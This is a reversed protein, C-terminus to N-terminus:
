LDDISPSIPRSTITNGKTWNVSKLNLLQHYAQLFQSILPKINFQNLAQKLTIVVFFSGTAFMISPLTWSSASELIGSLKLPTASITNSRRGFADLTSKTVSM